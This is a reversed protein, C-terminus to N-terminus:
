RASMSVASRGADDLVLDRSCRSVDELEELRLVRPPVDGRGWADTASRSSRFSMRLRCFSWLSSRALGAVEPAPARPPSAVFFSFSTVLGLLLELVLVPSAFGSSAAAIALLLAVELRLRALEGLDHLEDVLDLRGLAVAVRSPLGPSPLGAVALGAVAVRRRCAPSPWAVLFTADALCAMPSARLVEVLLLLGRGRAAPWPRPPGRAALFASSFLAGDDLPEGLDLALFASSSFIRLSVFSRALRMPSCGPVPPWPLAFPPLFPPAAAALRLGRDRALALDLLGVVLLLAGAVVELVAV